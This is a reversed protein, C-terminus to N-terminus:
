RWGNELLNKKWGMVSKDSCDLKLFDSLADKMPATQMDRCISMYALLQYGYVSLDAQDEPKIWGEVNDNRKIKVWGNKAALVKNEGSRQGDNLVLLKESLVNPEKYVSIDENTNKFYIVLDSTNVTVQEVEVNKYNIAVKAEGDNITIIKVKNILPVILYGKNSPYKTVIIRKTATFYCISEQCNCNQALDSLIVSIECVIDRHGTVNNVLQNISMYDFEYVPSQIEEYISGRQEASLGAIIEVMDAPYCALLDFLLESRWEEYEASRRDIPRNIIFDTMIDKDPKESQDTMMNYVAECKDLYYGSDSCNIISLLFFSILITIM